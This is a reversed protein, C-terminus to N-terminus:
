VGIEYLKGHKQILKRHKLKWQSPVEGTSWVKNWIRLLCESMIQRDANDIMSGTVGDPGPTNSYM